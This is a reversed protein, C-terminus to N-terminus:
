QLPASVVALLIYTHLHCKKDLQKVLSQLCYRLCIQMGKVHTLMPLPMFMHIHGQKYNTTGYMSHYYLFTLYVGYPPTGHQFALSMQKARFWKLHFIWRLWKYMKFNKPKHMQAVFLLTNHKWKMSSICMEFGTVQPEERTSNLNEFCM